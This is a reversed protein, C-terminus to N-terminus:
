NEIITLKAEIIEKALRTIIPIRRSIVDIFRANSPDHMEPSLNLFDCYTRLQNNEIPSKGHSVMHRLLKAETMPNPETTSDRYLPYISQDSTNPYEIEIIQFLLNIKAALPLNYTNALVWLKLQVEINNTWQQPAIEESIKQIANIDYKITVITQKRGNPYEILKLSSEIKQGSLFFIRDLERDLLFKAKNEDTEDDANITLFIDKDKQELIFNQPLIRQIEECTVHDLNLLRFIFKIM